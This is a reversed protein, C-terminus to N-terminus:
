EPRNKRNEILQAQIQNMKKHNLSYRSTLYAALLLFLIPILAFCLRLKLITQPLQITEERNFESWTVIFAGATPTMCYALKMFWGFIATYMGERRLGTTIEDYDCVDAIMVATLQWLCVMGPGSIAAQVVQLYPLKPTFLFWSSLAGIMTLLLGCILVVKKEWRSALFGILPVAALSSAAYTTSYLGTMTSTFNKDGGTIYALNIFYGLSSVLYTGIVTSVTLFCVIMFHKNKMTYKMAPLIAIKEKNAESFREKCFLAPFIAFIIFVSSALIAVTRVGIVEANVGEPANKGFVFCLKYLWPLFLLGGIGMFATKYTMLKVREKYDSTLEAGLAHYPIGFVTYATFYLLSSILFYVFMMNKSIGLPPWWMLVCFLGSFVIGILIFPKRRGFRSHFNDSINAVIPDSFADWIRPIMIALSVLMINVGLGVFYIQNALAIIINGLIVESVAGCSYSVKTYFPLKVSSDIASTLDQETIKDTM